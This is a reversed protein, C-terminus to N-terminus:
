SQHKQQTMWIETYINMVDDLGKMTRPPPLSTTNELLQVRHDAAANTAQDLDDSAALLLDCYFVKYICGHYVEYVVVMGM